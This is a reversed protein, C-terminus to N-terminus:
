GAPILLYRRLFDWSSLDSVTATWERRALILHHLHHAPVVNCHNLVWKLSDMTVHRNHFHRLLRLAHFLHSMSKAAGYAAQYNRPLDWSIIHCYSRPVHCIIPHQVWWIKYVMPTSTIIHLGTPMQIQIQPIPQLATLTFSNSSIPCKTTPTEDRSDPHIPLEGWKPNQGSFPHISQLNSLLGFCHIVGMHRNTHFGECNSPWNSAPTSWARHLALIERAMTWKAVRKRQM